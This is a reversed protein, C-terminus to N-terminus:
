LKLPRWGKSRDDDRVRVEWRGRIFVKTIVSCEGPYDPYDREPDMSKIVGAFNRKSHLTVDPSWSTSM